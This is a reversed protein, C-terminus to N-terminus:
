SGFKSIVEHNKEPRIGLGQCVIFSGKWISHPSQTVRYSNEEWPYYTARAQLRGFYYIEFETSSQHFSELPFAGSMVLLNIHM